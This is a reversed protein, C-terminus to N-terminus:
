FLAPIHAPYKSIRSKVRWSGRGLFVFSCFTQFSLLNFFYSCKNNRSKAKRRSNLDLVSVFCGAVLLVSLTVNVSSLRVPTSANAFVSLDVPFFYLLLKMIFYSLVSSILRFLLFEFYSMKFKRLVDSIQLHICIGGFSLFAATLPLSFDGNCVGNTIEIIPLLPEPIKVTSSLASFLVIYATIVIVSQAAKPTALTLADGLSTFSFLSYESKELRKEKFSLVFGILISSLANSLFLMVGLRTSNFTVTGVATIIFGCGGCFNFCMLRKAQNSDIEGAEFLEESLLAGTPYGGVLGFLIASFAAKPLNFFVRSFNGFLKILINNASSKMFTLFIILLPLLSPVVTNMALTLGDYAGKRTNKSFIIFLAALFILCLTQFFSYTVNKIKM